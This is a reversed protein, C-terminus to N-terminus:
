YDLSLRFRVRHEEAAKLITVLIQLDALVRDADKVEGPEDVLHSQIARLVELASSAEFWRGSERGVTPADFKMDEALAEAEAQSFAM